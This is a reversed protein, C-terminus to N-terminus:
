RFLSESCARLAGTYLDTSGNKRLRWTVNTLAPSSLSFVYLGGLGAPITIRSNSTNHFDDTDWLEMSNPILLAVISGSTVSQSSSNNAMYKFRHDGASAGDAGASGTAGTPGAPGTAGQPGAPGAPGVVGTTGQPGQPGAVGAGTPGTAGPPGAPGQPGVPGAVGAGTPGAQGQPGAPGTTMAAAASLASALQGQGAALTPLLAAAALADPKAATAALANPKAAAAALADPKAAAAALADTKAAAAILADPKANAAALADPKAAAATLAGSVDLTQFQTLLQGSLVHDADAQALKATLSGLADDINQRTQQTTIVDGDGNDGVASLDWNGSGAAGVEHPHGKYILPLASLTPGGTFNVKVTVLPPLLDGPVGGFAKLPGGANSLLPSFGTTADAAGVKGTFMGGALQAAVRYATPYIIEVTGGTAGEPMLVTASVTLLKAM